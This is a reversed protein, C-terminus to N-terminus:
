ENFKLINDLIKSVESKLDKEETIVKDLCHDVFHRNLMNKVKNMSSTVASVQVLIDACEKEEEIMKEIGSIHGRITRLRMLIDEKESAAM